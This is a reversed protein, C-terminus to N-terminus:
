SSLSRSGRGPLEAYTRADSGIVIAQMGISNAYVKASEVTSFTRSTRIDGHAALFICSFTVQNNQM